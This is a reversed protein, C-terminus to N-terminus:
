KELRRRARELRAARRNNERQQRIVELPDPKKPAPLTTTKWVDFSRVAVSTDPYAPYTVPGVDYLPDIEILTRTDPQGDKGKHWEDTITRFSFSCGDMDGREISAATDKATQTDPLDIEFKLGRENEVLRLTGSKTRGLLLNEDHNVLARVDSTGITKTFAGPRIREVFGGLDLSDKNFRAAYGTLKAPKDDAAREVRLEVDDTPLVRLEIKGPNKISDSEGQWQKLCVAYRQDNDPFEKNMAPDGMCRDMFQAKTENVDPTLLPM